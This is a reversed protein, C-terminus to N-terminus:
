TNTGFMCVFIDPEQCPQEAGDTRRLGFGSGGRRSHGAHWVSELAGVGVTQQFYGIVMRILVFVGKLDGVNFDIFLGRSM